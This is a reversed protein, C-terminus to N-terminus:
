NYCLSAAGLVAINVTESVDIIINERVSSYPFDRIVKRLEDIYFPFSKSVSGGFIIIEPDIAYLITTILQGIHYGYQRFIELASGDGNEARRFLDVGDIKHIERFFQGSCYYEYNRDKYAIMGFEGAGCNSGNYLSNNVIIGAGLGTGTILGVINSFNRAKGFYKEGVAFCNADNNIFVPCGFHDELREKLHVKKWSPINVLDYVIGSKIDVVGPVGVGISDVSKDFVTDIAEIVERIIKEKEEKASILRYYEQEIQNRSIRGVQVKTGGLDVGIVTKEQSNNM